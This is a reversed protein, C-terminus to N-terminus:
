RGVKKIKTFISIYIWIDEINWLWKTQLKKAIELALREVVM